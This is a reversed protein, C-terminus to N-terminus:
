KTDYLRIYKTAGAIKVEIWGGETAGATGADIFEVEDTFEISLLGEPSTNNGIALKSIGVIEEDGVDWQAELAKTGDIRVYDKGSTLGLMEHIRIHEELKNPM